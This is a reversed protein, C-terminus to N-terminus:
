IFAAYNAKDIVLTFDSDELDQAVIQGGRAYPKVSVEPERMIRVSDGYANIEGMYDSNTIESTLSTKRFALQVQKSFIVPSFNGNPLNGWGPASQFAM